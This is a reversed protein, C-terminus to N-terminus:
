CCHWSLMVSPLLTHDNSFDSVDNGNVTQVCFLPLRRDEGSPLSFPVFIFTVQSTTLKLSHLCPLTIVTLSDISLSLCYGFLCRRGCIMMMMMQKLVVVVVVVAEMM